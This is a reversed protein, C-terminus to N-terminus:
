IIKIETHPCNIEGFNISEIDARLGNLYLQNLHDECYSYQDGSRNEYEEQVRNNPSNVVCSYMPCIMVPGVEFFFRQMLGELKNPTQTVTKPKNWEFIERLINKIKNKNFIHGDVSLPYNWYSHPLVSMRSWFLCKGDTMFSPHPDDHWEDGMQRKNINSGLRLSYCAYSDHELYSLNLQPVERYIIDDDTFFIVNQNRCDRCAEWVDQYFDQQRISMIKSCYNNFLIDYSKEHQEDAKWIVKIQSCQDFNKYISQLLLDLQLARNKSFVIASIM